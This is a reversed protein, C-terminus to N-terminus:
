EETAELGALVAELHLQLRSVLYEVVDVFQGYSFYVRTDYVETPLSEPTPPNFALRETQWSAVFIQDSSRAEAFFLLLCPQNLIPQFCLCIGRERGDYWPFTRLEADPCRPFEELRRQLLPLIALAQTNLRFTPDISIM